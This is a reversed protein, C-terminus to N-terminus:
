ERFGHSRTPRVFLLTITHALADANDRHHLNGPKFAIIRATAFAEAFRVQSHM